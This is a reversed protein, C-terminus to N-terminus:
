KKKRQDEFQQKAKAEALPLVDKGFRKMIETKMVENYGKVNQTLEETVCCGAVILLDIGYDAKLVQKFLNDHAMPQGYQKWGLKNQTIASEAEKKGVEYSPQPTKTPAEKSSPEAEGTVAPKDRLCGALFLILCLTVLSIYKMRLGGKGSLVNRANIIKM